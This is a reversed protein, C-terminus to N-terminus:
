NQEPQEQQDGYKAALGASYLCRLSWMAREPIVAQHRVVYFCPFDIKCEKAKGRNTVERTPANWVNYGIAYSDGGGGGIVSVSNILLCPSLLILYIKTNNYSSPWDELELM